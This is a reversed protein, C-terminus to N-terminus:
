TGGLNYWRFCPNKINPGYMQDNRVIYQVSYHVSVCLTFSGTSIGVHAQFKHPDCNYEWIIGWKVILSGRPRIMVRLVANPSGRRNTAQQDCQMRTVSPLLGENETDLRYDM